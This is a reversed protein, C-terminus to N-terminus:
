CYSLHNEINFQGSAHFISVLNDGCGEEVQNPM